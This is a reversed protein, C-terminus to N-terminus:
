NNIISYGYVVFVPKDNNPIEEHGVLAEFEDGTTLGPYSDEMNPFMEKTTKNLTFKFKIEIEKGVAVVPFGAGYFVSEVKVKAVCPYKSCPDNENTSKQVPEIETIKGTIKAHGPPLTDPKIMTQDNEKTVEKHCHFSVISVSLVLLFLLPMKKM